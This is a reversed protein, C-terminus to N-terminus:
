YVRHAEPDALFDRISPAPPLNAGIRKQSIKNVYGGKPKRIMWSWVDFADVGTALYIQAFGPRGTKAIATLARQRLNLRTTVKETPDRFRAVQETVMRRTEDPPESSLRDVTYELDPSAQDYSITKHRHLTLFRLVTVKTGFCFRGGERWARMVWDHVPSRWVEVAPRWAGVRKALSAQVLWSSAPEFVYQVPLVLDQPTRSEPRIETFIPFVNGKDDTDVRDAKGSQGIFFTANRDELQELAHSLHDSLLLDDHNLFVVFGSNPAIALGASNPGSQEGFRRPLNYYLIRPDSISRIADATDTDCHDGIVLATWNEHSQNVMTQLTCRLADPRKYTAIIFTIPGNNMAEGFRLEELAVLIVAADSVM